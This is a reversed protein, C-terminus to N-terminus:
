LDNDIASQHIHEAYCHIDDHRHSDALVLCESAQKYVLCAPAM